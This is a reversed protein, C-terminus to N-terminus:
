KGPPRPGPTTALMTPIIRGPAAHEYDYAYGLLKAESWQRGIFILAFPKGDPYAGAPLIVGPLGAINIESVTTSSIGGGYLSGIEKTEQPFVLADLHKSRMVRDFIRLYRARLRAFASINPVATPHKDSYTVGKLATAYYYLPGKKGFIDLKLKREAQKLSHVQSRPGLEALYRNLDYPLSESGRPDYGGSAKALNAFGSGKFPDAVTTAGQAGLTHIAATYLTATDASLPAHKRWGAGYLGIRTGKLATTSFDATYGGRPVKGIAATTKPDAPSYGAMVGLMTAADEVTKALPGLVDRTPGALPVVGSNPVLAFTPKIGVLSQAAAPDQISGGTEEGLGATAFDAAVSTATGTSSGGPAWDRNLANFTPGAWSDNANDGSDSFIPINTKAIIVAGAHELRLVVPANHAPILRLGGSKPSFKAWGATTPLGAMNVSDKVVIPVGDLPGLHKHAARRADSARAESLAAGNMTTFANYFPEYTAIRTLFAETLQVSTDQGGALAAKAQAITFSTPDVASTAAASNAAPPSAATSAAGGAVFGAASLTVLLLRGMRKM